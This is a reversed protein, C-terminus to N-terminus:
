THCIAHLHCTARQQATLLLGSIKCNHLQAIAIAWMPAAGLDAKLKAGQLVGGIEAQRNGEILAGRVRVFVDDGDGSRAYM